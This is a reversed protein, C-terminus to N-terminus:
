QDNPIPITIASAEEKIPPLNGEGDSEDDIPPLIDCISVNSYSTERSRSMRRPPSLSERLTRCKLRMTKLEEQDLYLFVVFFEIFRLFVRLFTLSYDMQFDQDQPNNPDFNICSSISFSAIIVLIISEYTMLILLWSFIQRLRNQFDHFIILCMIQTIFFRTNIKGVHKVAELLFVGLITEITCLIGLCTM